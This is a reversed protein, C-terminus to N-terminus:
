ITGIRKETSVKIRRKASRTGVRSNTASSIAEMGFFGETSMGEEEMTSECVGESDAGSYELECSLWVGVTVGVGVGVGEGLGVGEGETVGEM